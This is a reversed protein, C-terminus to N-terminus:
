EALAADIEQYLKAFDPEGVFTKLVEGKKNILFSTPYVQTGFAQGVKKDGDFMVAFPLSYDKAYQRVSELSDVPQAIALVQFDKGQYDQAMQIVKPMESVCGPCSPFWFNIFSVKGQLAANDVTNGALDPLSFEPAAENKPLVVFVLLAAVVAVAALSLIKKM